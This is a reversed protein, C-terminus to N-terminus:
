VSPNNMISNIENESMGIDRFIYRANSLSIKKSSPIFLRQSCGKKKWLSGRKSDRKHSYGRNRLEELLLKREMM